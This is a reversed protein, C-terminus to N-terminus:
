NEKPKSVELWLKLGPHAMTKKGFRYAVQVNVLYDALAADNHCVAVM